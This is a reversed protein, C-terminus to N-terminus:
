PRREGTRRGRPGHLEALEDRDREAGLQQGVAARVDDLDLREVAVGDAVQRREGGALRAMEDRAILALVRQREVHAVGGRPRHDIPQHGAGVDHEGVESGAQGLLEAEVPPAQGLAVRAQDDAVDAGESPV